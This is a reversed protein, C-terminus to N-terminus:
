REQAMGKLERYLFPFPHSVIRHLPNRFLFHMIQDFSPERCLFLLTESRGRRNPQLLDYKERRVRSKPLTFDQVELPAIHVQKPPRDGQKLLLVSTSVRKGHIRLREVHQLGSGFDSRELRIIDEEVPGPVPHIGPVEQPHKIGGHPFCIHFTKPKVIQAM